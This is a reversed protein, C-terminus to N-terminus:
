AHLSDEQRYDTDNKHTQDLLRAIGLGFSVGPIKHRFDFGYGGVFLDADVDIAEDAIGEPRGCRDRM